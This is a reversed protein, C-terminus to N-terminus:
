QAGAGAAGIAVILVEHYDGRVLPLSVAVTRGDPSFAAKDFYATDGTLRGVERGTAADWVWFRLTGDAASSSLALWTGDFSAALSRAWGFVIRLALVRDGNNADWVRVPGDDRILESRNTRLNILRRNQNATSAIRDGGVFALHDVSDQHAREITTLLQGSSAEYIWIAGRPEGRYGGLGSMVGGLAILRGSPDFTLHGHAGPVPLWSGVEQWTQTDYLVVQDNHYLVALRQTAASVAYEKRAVPGRPGVPGLLTAVIEGTEINWVGLEIRKGDRYRPANTVDAAIVVHKSDPAFAIPVSFVSDGWLRDRLERVKKGAQVDWVAYGKSAGDVALYRGNPSWALHAAPQPLRAVIRLDGAVIQADAVSSAGCVLALVIVVAPWMGRM